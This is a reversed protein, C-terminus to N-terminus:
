EVYSGRYAPWAAQSNYREVHVFYAADGTEPVDVGHLTKRFGAFAPFEVTVDHKGPAVKM